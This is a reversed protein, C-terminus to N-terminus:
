ILGNNRNAACCFPVLKAGEAPWGAIRELQSIIDNRAIILPTSASM